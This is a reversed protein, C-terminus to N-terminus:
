AARGARKLTKRMRRREAKTMSEWDIDDPDVEGAAVEAPTIRSTEASPTGASQASSSQRGRTAAHLPGQSRAPPKGANPSSRPHSSAATSSDSDASEDAAQSESEDAHKRRLLRSFWSKKAVVDDVENEETTADADQDSTEDGTRQPKLRLSFWRKKKPPPETTEGSRSEPEEDEDRDGDGDADEPDIRRASRLGFWRRKPKDTDAVERDPAADEDHTDQEPTDGSVSESSETEPKPKRIRRKLRAFWGPRDQAPSDDIDTEDVETESADADATRVPKAAPKTVTNPKANPAAARTTTVSAVAPRPADQADFFESRFDADGNRREAIWETIRQRIPIADPINRIQRYMSRLYLTAAVLFCTWGLMPAATVLTAMLPGDVVVIQWHALESFGIWAGAQIMPVLAPRCRSLEAILRMALIIGGVDLVIRLWNAGSLVARNGVLLDLSAGLWGVLDVTSHVSAALLVILTWQWLQYHGRYDDRRHRRLVFILRTAGAALLLLMTTWWAAFGDPRDILLPRALDQRYALAPWVFALHHLSTLLISVSAIIAASTTM